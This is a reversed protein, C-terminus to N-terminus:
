ENAIFNIINSAYYIENEIISYAMDSNNTNMINYQGPSYDEEDKKNCIALCSEAINGM